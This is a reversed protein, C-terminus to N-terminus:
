HVTPTILLSICLLHIIIILRAIVRLTIHLLNILILHATAWPTDLPLEALWLLPRASNVQINLSRTARVRHTHTRPATTSLPVPCPPLVRPSLLLPIMTTRTPIFTLPLAQALTPLLTQSRRRLPWTLRTRASSSPPNSPVSALNTPSPRATTTTTTPQPALPIAARCPAPHMRPLIRAPSSTRCM